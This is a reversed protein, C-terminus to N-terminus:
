FRETTDKAEGYFCEGKDQTIESELVTVIYYANNYDNNEFDGSLGVICVRFGYVKENQM